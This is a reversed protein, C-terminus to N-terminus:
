SGLGLLSLIGSNNNNNNNAGLLSALNLSNSPFLSGALGSVINNQNTAQAGTKGATANGVGAQGTAVGGAASVGTNVQNQLNTLYNNYTQDALGTGYQQIAQQNNGGVAQGKAAADADVANIGQNLAFQYGPTNQWNQQAGTQAATGNLGNLNGLTTNAATGTQLFPSYDGQIQNGANIQANYGATNNNNLLGTIGTRLLGNILGNSGGSSTGSGGGLLSLIGSGSNVSSGGINGASAGAPAGFVDANFNSVNNSPNIAAGISSQPSLGADTGLGVGGLDSTGLGAPASPLFSSVDGIGTSSGVDLSGGATGVNFGGGGAGGGAGSITGGQPLYGSLSSSGSPTTAGASAFSDAPGNTNIGNITDTLNSSPAATGGLLSGIGSGPSYNFLNSADGGITGAGTLSGADSTLGLADTLSNGAGTGFGLEGSIAPVLEQGAFATGASLAAQGLNGGGALTEGGNILPILEPNGTATAAIDSLVQVIPNDFIKCM